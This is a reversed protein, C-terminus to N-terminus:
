DHRQLEEYDKEDLTILKWVLYGVGVFAILWWSLSVTFGANDLILRL